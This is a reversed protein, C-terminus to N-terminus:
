KNRLTASLFLKKGNVVYVGSQLHQKMWQLTVQTAIRKGNIDYVDAYATESLVSAIDTLTTTGTVTVDHAPMVEPLNTWGNFERTADLEVELPVIATGYPVQFTAYVAGDLVYTLTYENVSFQATLTVDKAPM